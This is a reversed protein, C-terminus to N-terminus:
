QHWVFVGIANVITVVAMVLGTKAHGSAVLLASALIFLATAILPRWPWGLRGAANPAMLFAWFVIIALPLGIGVVWRMGGNFTHFGWVSFVILMAIELVFGVGLNLMKLSNM